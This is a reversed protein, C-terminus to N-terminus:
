SRWHWRLPSQPFTGKAGGSIATIGREALGAALQLGIRTGYATAARAGVVSVSQLCAFRM